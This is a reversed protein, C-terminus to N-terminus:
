VSEGMGVERHKWKTKSEAPQHLENGRGDVVRM